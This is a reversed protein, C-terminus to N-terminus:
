YYKLSLEIHETSVASTGFRSHLEARDTLRNDSQLLEPELPSRRINVSTLSLLVLSGVDLEVRCREKSEFVSGWSHYVHAHHKNLLAFGEATIQALSLIRAPM